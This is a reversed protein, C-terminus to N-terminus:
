QVRKRKVIRGEGKKGLNEKEKGKKSSEEGRKWGEMERRKKGIRKGKEDKNFVRRRKEIKGERRKGNGKEKM